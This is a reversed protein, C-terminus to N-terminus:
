FVKFKENAFARMEFVLKLVIEDREEIQSVLGQKTPLSIVKAVKKTFEEVGVDM